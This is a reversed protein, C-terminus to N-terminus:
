PGVTFNTSATAKGVKNTVKLPYDAAPFTKSVKPVLFRLESAGTTPNMYWYTVKCNKTKTQGNSQYELYVKGKKTGFFNGTLTIEDEPRGSNDALPDLEPNKVTFSDDLHITGITKSTVSVAYAGVPLSEKNVTGIIRNDTWSTIKTAVNGVLVKGKKDGLGSGIIAIETGITGEIPTLLAIVGDGMDITFPGDSVDGGVIQSNTDYGVIMVLCQTKQGEVFPITWELSTGTVFGTGIQQWNLGNDLSFFVRFKGAEPPATWEITQTTGAQFLQGGNPSIVNISAGSGGQITFPGDSTDGGVMQDDADYGIWMILCQRVQGMVLPITWTLSRGTMFGTGIQQWSLGSDLSLFVKSKDVEPPAAWKITQTSGSEWIEGGNPAILILNHRLDHSLFAVFTNYYGELTPQVGGTTGPIDSSRTWGVMYVGEAGIALAEAREHDSGGLYTSQTLTKLDPTLRSVFADGNGENSRQAGEETAPFDLSYTNGLIYVGTAGIALALGYDDMTGGLYTSQTLTKLDLTLLSIFADVLGGNSSQAGGTTGPFDTSQTEGIVYLGAAGLTLASTFDNGSGGLYTSQTLTRLDPTLLAIFVDDSGGGFTPQAGGTTGPFYGLHDPDSTSGAVYVGETGVALARPEEYGSGGLYTSQTLTRLDPTLLSVFAEENGASASQAGGATGPFDTSFTCGTVYVGASGPALAWIRESNSGGLYTSQILTKLDAALLTVYGDNIDVAHTPQAGGTTGPFDTSRTEGAVYVGDDNVALTFATDPESGGLYTSQILTKLDFSLLAVFADSNGANAPQAGGTTGPFNWSYASGAVYIGAEGVVLGCATDSDTGGLYTSQLIPDITLTQEPDYSGLAFTYSMSSQENPVTPTPLMYAVPVPIRKGDIKQYAIPKSFALDGKDTHIILEGEPSLGLSSAGDVALTLCPSTHPSVTIIKEIKGGYASLSVSIGPSIEGLSVAAYTPLTKQWRSPDNGTFSSVTTRSPTLGRPTVALGPIREIITFGPFGYVMEGKKTVYLTSGLTKAYYAVDNDIQGRNEVFPISLGSLAHAAKKVDPLKSPSPTGWGSSVFVVISLFMALFFFTKKM